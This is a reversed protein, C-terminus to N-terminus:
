RRMDALARMFHPYAADYVADGFRTFFSDIIQTASRAEDMSFLPTDTALSIITEPPDDPHFLLGREWLEGFWVNMSDASDGSVAPIRSQSM